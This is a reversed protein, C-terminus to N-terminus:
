KKIEKVRQVVPPHSYYFAAYFPHPHLNSLNDKSLKILASAMAEKNGTLECAFRDAEREFHRSIYSSLPIFPFSIIGGIFGLIVVKVFFTEQKIYFLNTLFDSQLVRFSIYIGILSAAEMMVIMKLVHRKKWHGAEHALISLIEGHDMRELLTDYLIIRKVRGIGSFYANTHRSRKSADMKFVSSVRINVKQMLDKIKEELDTEGVRTFKNFLPEIVYPSIYMMFLTYIFFFVWIWIWWHHPSSQILLLGVLVLIGTLVTSLLLTKFFDVAWLKPTMTNFGFRNEIRFTRYLSFPISLFTGAYSLLLIFLIGSLIFRGHLSAIWSNYINLLGGFLFIITTVNGFISSVFGFRTKEAEYEQIKKLLDEDIQGKFENPIISGYRRMHSLNMYQLLYEFGERLVYLFLIVILYTKLALGGGYKLRKIKASFGRPFCFLRPM